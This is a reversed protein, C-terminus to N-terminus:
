RAPSKANPSQVAYLVEVPVPVLPLLEAVQAAPANNKLLAALGQLPKADAHTFGIIIGALKQARVPDNGLEAVLYSAHYLPLTEDTLPPAAALFRDLYAPLVQPFPHDLLFACILASLRPSMPYRLLNEYEPEALSTWNKAQFARLRLLTAEDVPLRNGYNNLLAVAQDPLDLQLLRDVQYYPLYNGANLPFRRNLRPLADPIKQKLIAQEIKVVELGWDPLGHDGNVLHELVEQDNTQRAAFVLAHLWAERHGSDESLMATALTKIHAYDGRALLMRFWVRATAPRQEPIDEMLREYVHEAVASQGSLQLLNALAIAAAHNQPNLECVTQLSLIAAPYNGSALAQQARTAHLQERASRLEPWHWPLVVTAYGMRYGTARLTVFAAVSGLLYLALLAAGFFAMARLWFPRVREADVRCRWGNKTEVLLPCVKHFRQPNKWSAVAECRADYALGSDGFNQCPCSDRHAGNLRFWTKRANWYALAWWFRFFDAIWGTM